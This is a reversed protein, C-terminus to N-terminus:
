RRETVTGFVHFRSTYFNFVFTVFISILKSVVIPMRDVLLAIVLMSVGLGSLGFLLFRAFQRGPRERLASGAFTWRRNLWFSCCMGISYAGANAVPWPQDFVFLLMAFAALDVATNLIGVLGFKLVQITVSSRNETVEFSAM